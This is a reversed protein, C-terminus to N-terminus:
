LITGCCQICNVFGRSRTATRVHPLIGRGVLDIQLPNKTFTIMCETKGYRCANENEHVVHTIGDDTKVLM